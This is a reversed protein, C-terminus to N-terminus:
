LLFVGTPIKGARWNQSQSRCCHSSGELKDILTNDWNITQYFSNWCTILEIADATWTYTNWENNIGSRDGSGNASGGGVLTGATVDGLTIWQADRYPDNWLSNGYVGNLALQAQDETKYFQDVSTQSYVIEDLSPKCGFFGMTATAAIIASSIFKINFYQKM